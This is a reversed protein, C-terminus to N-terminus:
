KKTNTNILKRVQELKEEDLPKSLFLSVDQWENQQKPAIDAFASLLCVHITQPIQPKLQRFQQMFDSANMLPMMKDLFIVDPAEHPADNITKQLHQLCESANNFTTVKQSFNLLKILKTNTIASVPDDDILIVKIEKTDM